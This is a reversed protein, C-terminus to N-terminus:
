SEGRNQGSLVVRHMIVGVAFLDEVHNGALAQLAVIAESDQQLRPHGDADGGLDFVVHYIRARLGESGQNGEGRAVTLRYPDLLLGRLSDAAYPAIHRRNATLSLIGRVPSKACQDESWFM